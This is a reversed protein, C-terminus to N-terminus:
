DDRDADLRNLQEQAKRLIAEADEILRTLNRITEVALERWEESKKSEYESYNAGM